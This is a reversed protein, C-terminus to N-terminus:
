GDGDPSPRTDGTADGRSRWWEDIMAGATACVLPLGVLLNIGPVNVVLAGVVLALVSSPEGGRFRRLLLSGLVVTGVAAAAYVFLTGGFFPIAVAMPLPEPAGLEVGLLLLIALILTGVIGAVFAGLGIAGARVPAARLRREIFRVYTGSGFLTSAALVVGGILVSFAVSSLYVILGFAALLALAEVGSAPADAATQALAPSLPALPAATSAPIPPLAM